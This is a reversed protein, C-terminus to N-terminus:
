AASAILPQSDQRSLWKDLMQQLADEAIPKSIYDDMGADLCRERDGALANATVAIIPISCGNERAQRTAEYGDLEPMQCDMFIIDFSSAQLALLAKLGNGVVTIDCGLDDLAAEIVLQNVPNDEAVLARVPMSPGMVSPQSDLASDTTVAPRHSAGTESSVNDAIAHLPARVRVVTGRGPESDIQLNGEMLDVLGEVITLGIGSGGARRRADGHIQHFLQRVAALESGPIGCGTDSVSLVLSENELSLHVVIEGKETFKVANGVLNKGIQRWRQPDVLVSPPFTEDIELMLAIPKDAIKRRSVEVVDQMIQGLDCRDVVLNVDHSALSAADLLDSVLGLMDEGSESLTAVLKQQEDNLPTKVLMRVMGLVGNMPTRLEHSMRALFEDKSQLARQNRQRLLLTERIQQHFRSASYLCGATTMVLPVLLRMITEDAIGNVCFILGAVIGGMFAQYCVPWYGLSVIVGVTSILPVLAIVFQDVLELQPNWLMIVSGWILGALGMLITFIGVPLPRDLRNRSWLILALRLSLLVATASGWMMLAGDDVRGYFFVVIACSIALALYWSPVAQEFLARHLAAEVERDEDQREM